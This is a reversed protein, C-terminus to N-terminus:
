HRRRAGNLYGSVWHGKVDGWKISSALQRMLRFLPTPPFSSGVGDRSSGGGEVFWM